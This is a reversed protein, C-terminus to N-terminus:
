WFFHLNQNKTQSFSCAYPWYAMFALSASLFCFCPPSAVPNIGTVFHELHLFCIGFFKLFCASSKCSVLFRLSSASLFFLFVSPTAEELFGCARDARGWQAPSQTALLSEGSSLVCFASCYSHRALCNTQNLGFSQVTSLCNALAFTKKHM